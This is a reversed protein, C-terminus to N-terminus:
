ALLLSSLAKDSQAVPLLSFRARGVLAPPLPWSLRVPAPCSTEVLSSVTPETFARGTEM